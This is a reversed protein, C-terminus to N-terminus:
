RDSPAPRPIPIIGSYPPLTFLPPLLNNHLPSPILMKDDFPPAQQSLVMGEDIHSPPAQVFARDFSQDDLGSGTPVAWVALARGFFQQAEFEPAIRVMWQTTAPSLNSLLMAVLVLALAM